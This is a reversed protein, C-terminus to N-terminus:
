LEAPVGAYADLVTNQLLLNVQVAIQLSPEHGESWVLINVQILVRNVTWNHAATYFIAEMEFRTVNEFIAINWQLFQAM